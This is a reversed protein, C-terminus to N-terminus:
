CLSRELLREADPAGWEYRKGEVGRAYLRSLGEATVRVSPELTAAFYDPVEVLLSLPYSQQMLIDWGAVEDSLIWTFASNAKNLENCGELISLRDQVVDRLAGNTIRLNQSRSATISLVVFETPGWAIGLGVGSASDAARVYQIGLRELTGAIAQLSALAEDM